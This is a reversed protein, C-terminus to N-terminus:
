ITVKGAVVMTFKLGCLLGSIVSECLLLRM